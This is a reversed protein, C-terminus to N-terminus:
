VVYKLLNKVVSKKRYLSNDSLADLDAAGCQLPNFGFDLMCNVAYLDAYKEGNKTGNYRSHGYEHFLILFIQNLPKEYFSTDFCIEKKFWNITCKNPNPSFYIFFKDPRPLFRQPFPLPIKDYSVPSKMPSFYGTDVMYSGVPLNFKTCRPLVDETSFFLIGRQDRIVIPQYPDNVKFGTKETVNLQRAM